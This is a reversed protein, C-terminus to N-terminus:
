WRLVSRGSLTPSTHTAYVHWTNVLKCLVYSGRWLLETICRKSRVLMISDAVSYHKIEVRPVAVIYLMTFQTPAYGAEAAFVHKNPTTFRFLSLWDPSTVRLQWYESCWAIVVLHGGSLWWSESIWLGRYTSKHQATACWKSWACTLLVNWPKMLPLYKCSKLDTHLCVLKSQRGGFFKLVWNKSGRFLNRFSHVCESLRWVFHMM